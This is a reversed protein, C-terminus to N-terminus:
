PFPDGKMALKIRELLEVDVNTLPNKRSLFSAETTM